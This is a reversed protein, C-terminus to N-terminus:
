RKAERVDFMVYSAWIGFPDCDLMVALAMQHLDPRHDKSHGYAGLTEIGAGHFSMTTTDMFVLSLDTFLDQRSEFLREEM